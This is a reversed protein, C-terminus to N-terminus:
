GKYWFAYKKYLKDHYFVDQGHSSSILKPQIEDIIAGSDINENMDISIQRLPPHLADNSTVFLDRTLLINDIEHHYIVHGPSHGPTFYYHIPLNALTQETLPQM